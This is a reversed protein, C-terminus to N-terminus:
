DSANEKPRGKSPKELKQNKDGRACKDEDNNKNPGKIDFVAQQTRKKFEDHQGCAEL